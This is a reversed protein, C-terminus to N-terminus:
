FIVCSSIGFSRLQVEPACFFFEGAIVDKELVIVIVHVYEETLHQLGSM